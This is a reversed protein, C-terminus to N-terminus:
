KGKEAKRADAIVKEFSALTKPAGPILYHGVLFAPTGDLGIAEAQKENRGLLASITKDHTKLDSQLRNWDIGVKAAIEKVVAPSTHGPHDLLANHFALYKGQWQAATAARAAYVSDPGFIPWNKYAVRIDHDKQLLEEMIRNSLKCYPCNYDFFEVITLNGKPNGGVPADPDHTVDNFTIAPGDANAARVGPAGVLGVLGALLAWVFLRKRGIM